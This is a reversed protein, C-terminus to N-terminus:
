GARALDALAERVRAANAIDLRAHCPVCMPRYHDFNVSFVQMSDADFREFVDRHDYAWHLAPKGCDVCWHKSASGRQKRLLYHVVGYASMPKM